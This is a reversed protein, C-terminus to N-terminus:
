EKVIKRIFSGKVTQIHVMYIGPSLTSLDFSLSSLDTEKQAVKVGQLNNIFAIKKGNTNGDIHITVKDKAPNPYVSIENDFNVLTTGAPSPCNASVWKTDLWLLRKRIATKLSSIEQAYNSPMPAPENVIPIGWIPWQTFNRSVASQANLYTNVSDIFHFITITDLANGSRRYNSYACKLSDMFVSDTTLKSWWFPALKVESGCVAGLNYCWGTDVSSNCNSTNFYSLEGNWLPGFRLKKGKDKYFFTNQRYAEYNRSVEQMIMFDILSGQSAFNRWGLTTDQFNASNMANEFSDVFSKSYAAQAPTITGADPYEYNFTIHQTSAYPPLIVSTWGAGIEDDMKWIYGGTLNVGSNDSTTLKSINVRGTDRKVKEGFTYIGEYQSNIIVECFKMRPSYRGMKQHLNFSLATRIFSRDPYSALLVWDNESPMGLLSTDQSVSPTSWTEVTYSKKPYSQTIANGRLKIGIIGTYVPTSTPTNLGSTNNILSFNGQIASTNITGSTTIIIIPLNTSTLQAISNYSSGSLLLAIPLFKLLKM